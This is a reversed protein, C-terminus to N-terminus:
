TDSTSIQALHEAHLTSHVTARGAVAGFRSRLRRKVAQGGVTMCTCILLAAGQDSVLRLPNDHSVLAECLSVLSTPASHCAEHLVTVAHRNLFISQNNCELVATIVCDASLGGDVTLLYSLLLAGHPNVILETINESVMKIIQNYYLPDYHRSSSPELLSKMARAGFRSKGLDVGNVLLCELLCRACQGLGLCGQVVYNGFQDKLLAVLYPELSSMLLNRLTRSQTSNSALSIFKQVVWTGNKHCSLAALHPSLQKCIELRREFDGRELLKQVVINGMADLCLAVLHQRFRLYISDVYDNAQHELEIRIEKLDDSPAVTDPLTPIPHNFSHSDTINSASYSILRPSDPQSAFVSESTM